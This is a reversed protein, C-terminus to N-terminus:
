VETVSLLSFLFVFTFYSSNLLAFAECYEVLSKVATCVWGKGDWERSNKCQLLTKLLVKSDSRSGLLVFPAVCALKSCIYTDAM